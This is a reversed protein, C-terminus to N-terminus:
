GVPNLWAAEKEILAAPAGGPDAEGIFLGNRWYLVSPSGTETSVGTVTDEEWKRITLNLNGGSLPEPDIPTFGTILGDDYSISFRKVDTWSETQDNGKIEVVSGDDETTVHIQPSSGREAIRKWKITEGENEAQTAPIPPVAESDGPTAASLPKIIAEGRGEIQEATRFEYVTDADRLGKYWERKEGINEIEALNPLFDIEGVWLQHAYFQYYKGGGVAVFELRKIRAIPWYYEGLTAVPKPQYHTSEKFVKPDESGVETFIEASTVKGKDDTAFKVYVVTNDEIEEFIPTPFGELPGEGSKEVSHLTYVQDETTMPLWNKIYGPIITLKCSTPASGASLTPSDGDNPWVTVRFQEKPGLLINQPHLNFHNFLNTQNKPEEDSGRVEFRTLYTHDALYEGTDVWVLECSKRNVALWTPSGETPKFLKFIPYNDLPKYAKSTEEPGYCHYYDDGNVLYGAKIKFYVASPDSGGVAESDLIEMVEFPKSQRGASALTSGKAYPDRSLTKLGSILQNYDSVKLPDGIKVTRPNPIM